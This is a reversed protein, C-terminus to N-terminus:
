LGYKLYLEDTLWPLIRNRRLHTIFRQWSCKRLMKPNKLQALTNDYATIAKGDGIFEPNREDYFLVVYGNILSAEGGLNVGASLINRVLQYNSAIPCPNLDTESDLNFFYPIYDWYKVGRETLSCRTARNQQRTYSGNCIKEDYRSDSKSIKTRSCTGIEKEIFKFELAIKKKDLILGDVSTPKPEGLYNIKYEFRFKNPPLQIDKFLTEGQDDELNSLKKIVNHSILNGFISLGLAQSSNMSRFWKHIESKPMLSILKDIQEQTSNPKDLVNHWSKDKKFVPPRDYLGKPHDLHKEWEPFREEQYDWYRSILNNRYKTYTTM